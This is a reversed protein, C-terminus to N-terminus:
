KDFVTIVTGQCPRPSGKDLSQKTIKFEPPRLPDFIVTTNFGASQWKVQTANSTTDNKFDPVVCMPTAAGVTLTKSTTSTLGGSDTVTLTVAYTNATGYTKNPPDKLTSTTGDGFAWAWSVISGTSSNAFSVSLPATGSPPSLAFDAIPGPPVTVNITRSATSSALGNSVTLSAQYSGPVTYTWAPPAKVSADTTGDGDFDWAWTTNNTSADSFTVVLPANGTMPSANFAAVPAPPGGGPVGAVLGTRIPFVASASVDVPSNLVTSIIPTLIGFECTIAVQADDGLSTGSPFSPPPIPNPLACNITTADNQVLQRYAALAAPNGANLLVANAAAYNAAIRATNNLNVWGLFVRGFDIGTLIILLIVPLILAFEVLSQGRTRTRSRHRRFLTTLM